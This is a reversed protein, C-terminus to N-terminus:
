QKGGVEVLEPNESINGIVEMVSPSFNEVTGCHWRASAPAWRIVRRERFTKDLREEKFEVIDGEYIEKGNKDKLGIYQMVEQFENNLFGAFTADVGTPTYTYGLNDYYDQIDYAMRKLKKDWARYKHERM